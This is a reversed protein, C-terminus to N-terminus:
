PPNLSRLLASARRRTPEDDMGSLHDPLFHRQFATIVHRAEIDYGIVALDRLLDGPPAFGDTWVGVGQGALWAWPFLEGPDRKRDPAIDAHAVINRALIAHRSLCARCLAAVADMQTGPFGRYGWEHGPNVIEIGISRNNLGVDGRWFSVGAHWARAAEPVLNHVTGDEEVLYHASVQAAPDCLRDLAAQATPMGTYHLVLMDIDATRADFNPSPTLIM